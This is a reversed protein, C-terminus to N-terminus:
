TTATWSSWTRWSASSSRDLNKEQFVLYANQRTHAILAEQRSLRQAENLVVRGGVMRGTVAWSLTQFPLIQNARSGDSGLGWTVGSQQLTRLPAMDQAARGFVTRNIGGNIVAWPHVAAMMGLKKMRELDTASIQNVHALVWRLNRIPIEKDILEIQDLFAGITATLNAHVHLPLGAKAVETAVRRWQALQEPQPDSARVFMPDHLPGYVTEGYAIHNIFTDGQQVKMARIQPLVDTVQQPTGPGFGTICFVRVNLEKKEAWQRYLPLVDPECAASGFATLGARNLDRIMQRTSSELAEGKAVPLRAAVGRLSAEEVVGSPADIGLAKAGLTNAYGRYYSAQLFVPHAPAVRDLEERTFPRDDDAFQDVTWGGLTYIWEGPPMAKAREALLDLAQKRYGVGDLRVERQWTTGARLLHMHNDILGPIVTKGQLDIRRTTAVLWRRSRRTPESPPSAGTRWDGRGARDLVASRRDRDQRQDPDSRAHASRPWRRRLRPSRVPVRCGSRGRRQQGPQRQRRSAAGDEGKASAVLTAGTRDLAVSSGFEDFAETNSGKVYARQQWTTGARTFLYM